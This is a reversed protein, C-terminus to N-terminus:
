FTHRLGLNWGTSGSGSETNNGITYGAGNRNKVHGYAGYIGSRKSLMYLYAIGIASADQDFATRDDKHMMSFMLNGPGIPAQFGLLAERGDTSPTPKTGGYPNNANPLPASNYGQDIGYGAHLKIWKLDYSAGVLTNRGAGHLVAAADPTAAIDANKNNYAVRLALPGATYGIAGGYQRGASSGAQEGASYSLEADVGRTAPMTYTITNSTRVNTGSDPFINGARGAYGTAFPDVVKVMMNHYPTFQRGLAVTGFGGKLGVFAQRNFLTNASDLEGTDIKTGTELTFIASLGNGLDETGRFGIRSTAAAGSTVKAVTGGAGGSESVLAADAIGYLTVSTQAHAAASGLVLILARTKKM